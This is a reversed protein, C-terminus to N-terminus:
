RKRYVIRADRGRRILIKIIVVVFWLNKRINFHVVGCKGSFVIDVHHNKMFM